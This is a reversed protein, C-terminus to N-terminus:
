KNVVKKGNVIYVGKQMRNLNVNKGIFKGDITYANGNEYDADLSEIATPDEDIAMKVSFFSAIITDDNNFFARYGKITTADTAYYFKNDKLYLPFDGITKMVTPVYVGYFGFTRKKTGFTVKIENAVDSAELGNVGTISAGNEYTIDVTPKVIYPVNADVSSTSTFSLEVETAEDKDDASWGTFEAIQAGAGFAEEIQTANMDFPVCFSNWIGATFKRHLVVNETATSAAPLETADDYLDLKDEVVEIEFSVPATMIVQAAIGNGCEVENLTATFVDGVSHSGDDQLVLYMIVGSAATWHSVTPTQSAFKYYNTSPNSTLFSHDTMVDGKNIGALSIGDVLNMSGGVNIRTETANVTVPVEVTKGSKIYVKDISMSATQGESDAFAALTVISTLITLFIKKM